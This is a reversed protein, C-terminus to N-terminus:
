SGCNTWRKCTWRRRPQWLCCFSQNAAFSREQVLSLRNEITERNRDQSALEVLASFQEQEVEPLLLSIYRQAFAPANQVESALRGRVSDTGYIEQTMALAAQHPNLFLRSEPFESGTEVWIAAGENDLFQFFQATEPDTNFAYLSDTAVVLPQAENSSQLTFFDYAIGSSQFFPEYYSGAITMLAEGTVFRNVAATRDDSLTTDVGLSYDQVWTLFTEWATVVSEDDWPTYGEALQVTYEGLLQSENMDYLYSFVGEDDNLNASLMPATNALWNELDIPTNLLIAQLANSAFFSNNALSLSLAGMGINPLYENVFQDYTEPPAEFPFTDPNYWVLGEVSVNLPLGYWVDEDEVGATYFTRLEAPYNDPNLEFAELPQLIGYGLCLISLAEDGIVIADPLTEGVAIATGLRDSLENYPIILLEYDIGYNQSFQELVARFHAEEAGMWYSWITLVGDSDQAASFGVSSVLLCVFLLKVVTKFLNM